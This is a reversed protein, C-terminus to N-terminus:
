LAVCKSFSSQMPQVLCETSSSKPEESGNMGDGNGTSKYVRCESPFLKPNKHYLLMQLSSSFLVGLFATCIGVVISVVITTEIRSKELSKFLEAIGKVAIYQVFCLFGAVLLAISYYCLNVVLNQTDSFRAWWRQVANGERNEEPVAPEDLEIAKRVAINNVSNTIVCALIPLVICLAMVYMTIRVAFEKGESFWQRSIVPIGVKVFFSVAAAVASFLFPLCIAKLNARKRLERNERELM